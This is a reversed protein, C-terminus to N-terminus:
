IGNNARKYHFNLFISFLFIEYSIILSFFIILQSAVDPPTFFTALLIFSFYIIKRSIILIKLSFQRLLWFGILLIHFFGNLLLFSELFFNLYDALRNELYIAVISTEAKLQFGSFFEWTYPLFIKYSLFTAVIYLIISFIVFKKLLVYEYRYLAPILFLWIQLLLNPFSFYFALVFILKCYVFFIETLQTTIFYPFFVQQSQGLFYILQEKYFYLLISNLMWTFLFFFFRYKLEIFYIKLRM